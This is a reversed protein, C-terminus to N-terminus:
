YIFYSLYWPEWRLVSLYKLNKSKFLLIKDIRIETFYTECYMQILKMIRVCISFMFIIRIFYIEIFNKPFGNRWLQYFSTNTKLVILVKM